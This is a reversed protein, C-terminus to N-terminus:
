WYGWARGWGFVNICCFYACLVVTWPSHRRYGTYIGILAGVFYGPYIVRMDPDAANIALWLSTIITIITSLLDLWFVGPMLQHSHRFYDIIKRM